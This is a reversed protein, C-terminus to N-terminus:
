PVIPLQCAAGGITAAPNISLNPAGIYPKSLPVFVADGYILGATEILAGTEDPPLKVVVVNSPVSASWTEGDNTGAEEPDTATEVGWTSSSQFAAM